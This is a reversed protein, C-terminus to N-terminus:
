HISHHFSCHHVHHQQSNSHSYVCLAYFGIQFPALRRILFQVHRFISGVFIGISDYKVMLGVYAILEDVVVESYKITHISTQLHQLWFSFPQSVPLNNIHFVFGVTRAM